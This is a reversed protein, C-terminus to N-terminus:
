IYEINGNANECPILEDFDEDDIIDFFVRDAFECPLNIPCVLDPCSVAMSAGVESQGGMDWFFREDGNQLDLDSSYVSGGPNTCATIDELSGYCSVDQIIVSDLIDGSTVEINLRTDPPCLILQFIEYLGAEDFILGPGAGEEVTCLCRTKDAPLGEWDWAEPRQGFGNQLQQCPMLSVPGFPAEALGCALCSDEFDDEGGIDDGDKSGDKSGDESSDKSKKKKKKKKLEREEKQTGKRLSTNCLADDQKKQASFDQSRALKRTALKEALRRENNRKNWRQQVAPFSEIGERKTKEFNIEVWNQLKPDLPAGNVPHLRRTPGEIADDIEDKKTFMYHNVLRAVNLDHAEDYPDTQLPDSLLDRTKSTALLSPVKPTNSLEKTIFKAERIGRPLDLQKAMNLVFIGCNNQVIDHLNADASDMEDSADFALAIDGYSRTGLFLKNEDKLFQIDNTHSVLYLNKQMKLPKAESAAATTDKVGHAEMVFSPPCIGSDTEELPMAVLFLHDQIWLSMEYKVDSCGAMWADREEASSPLWGEEVLNRINARRHNNWSPLVPSLAAM